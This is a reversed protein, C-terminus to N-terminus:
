RVHRAQGHWGLADGRQLRM